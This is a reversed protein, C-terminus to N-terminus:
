PKSKLKHSYARSTGGRLFVHSIAYVLAITLISSIAFTRLSSIVQHIPVDQAQLVLPFVIMFIGVVVSVVIIENNKRRKELLQEHRVEQREAVTKGKPEWENRWSNERKDTSDYTSVPIRTDVFGAHTISAIGIGILLISLTLSLFLESANSTALNLLILLFGTSIISTGFGLKTLGKHRSFM